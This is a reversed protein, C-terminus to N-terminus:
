VSLGRMKCENKLYETIRKNTNMKLKGKYVDTWNSQTNPTTYGFTWNIDPDNINARRYKGNELVWNPRFTGSGSEGLKRGTPHKSGKGKPSRWGAIGNAWGPYNPGYVEGVFQYRAYPTKGNGWTIKDPEVHMSARLTGSKKPVFRNIESGIFYNIRTRMEPEDLMKTFERLKWLYSKTGRSYSVDINFTGVKM